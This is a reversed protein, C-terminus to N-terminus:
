RFLFRINVKTFKAYLDKTKGNFEEATAVTAATSKTSSEDDVAGNKVRSGTALDSSSSSASTVALVQLIQGVQMLNHRAIYGIPADSTIGYPEPDCVAPCVFYTVVLDACIAQADVPPTRGVKTLTHYLHSVIWALSPPFCYM